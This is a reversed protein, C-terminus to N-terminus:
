LYHHVDLADANERRIKFSGPDVGLKVALEPLLAAGDGGVVHSDGRLGQLVAEREVRPVDMELM